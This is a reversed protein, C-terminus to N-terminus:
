PQVAARLVGVVDSGASQATIACEFAESARDLSVAPEVLARFPFGPSRELFDLAAALDEPAYNHIGMVVLCRKVLTEVVISVPASPFVAGLVAYVGGVRLLGLGQLFSENAGSLELARDVGRGRTVEHVVEAVTSPDTAHTAGFSRALTRRAHSPDVVIVSEARLSRARACATLGLM